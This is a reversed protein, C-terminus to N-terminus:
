AENETTHIIWQTAEKLSSAILDAPQNPAREGYDYRIWITKCGANQGAEIDKFRDGIMFSKQLDIGYQEAAEILLGPLPKRCLCQDKDDHYCVRIDDLPLEEM